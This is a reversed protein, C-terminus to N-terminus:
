ASVEQGTAKDIAARMDAVAGRAAWGSAELLAVLRRAVELLEPAAAILRADPEHYTECIGTAADFPGADMAVVEAVDSPGDGTRRFVWPGPTHSPMECGLNCDFVDTREDLGFADEATRAAMSNRYDCDVHHNEPKGRM